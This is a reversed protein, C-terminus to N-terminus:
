AWCVELKKAKRSGKVGNHSCFMRLDDIKLRDVPVGAISKLPTLQPPKVKGTDKKIPNIAEPTVESKNQTCSTYMVYSIISM